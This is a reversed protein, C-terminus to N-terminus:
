SQSLASMFPPSPVNKTPSAIPQLSYVRGYAKGNCGQAQWVAQDGTLAYGTLAVKSAPASTEGEIKGEWEEM